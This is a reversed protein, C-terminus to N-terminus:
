IQRQVARSTFHTLGFCPLAQNAGVVDCSTCYSITGSKWILLHSSSPAIFQCSEETQFWKSNIHYIKSSIIPFWRAVSTETKILEGKPAVIVSSDAPARPDFAVFPSVISFNGGGMRNSWFGSFVIQDFGSKKLKVFVMQDYLYIWLPHFGLITKNVTRKHFRLFMRILNQGKKVLM